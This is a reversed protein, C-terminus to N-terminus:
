RPTSAEAAAPHGILLRVVEDAVDVPDLCQIVEMGLEAAATVNCELDDIFLCREPAVDLRQCTLRYIRPDPKRLGVRSSDVVIDFLEEVPFLERWIAEGGRSINTLLATKYAGAKVQRVADAMASSAVMGRGFIVSQAVRPDIPENGMQAYRVCMRDFFEDDSIAGLELLHLDHVGTTLHYVDRFENLFFAVLNLYAPDVDHRNRFLPETMVGGLDFIAADFRRVAGSYGARTADVM